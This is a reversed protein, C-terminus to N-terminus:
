RLHLSQRFYYFFSHRRKHVTFTLPKRSYIGQLTIKERVHYVKTENLKRLRSVIIAQKKGNIQRRLIILIFIYIKPSSAGNSPHGGPNAELTIEPMDIDEEKEM